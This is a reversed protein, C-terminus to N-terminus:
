IPAIIPKKTLPSALQLGMKACRRVSPKNGLSGHAGKQIHEQPSGRPTPAGPPCAVWCETNPGSGQQPGLAGGREYETWCGARQRQKRVAGRDGDEILTQSPPDEVREPLCDSSLNTLGGPEGFPVLAWRFGPHFNMHVGLSCKPGGALM